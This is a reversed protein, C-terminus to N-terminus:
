FKKTEIAVMRGWSAPTFGGHKKLFRFNKEKFNQYKKIDQTYHITYKFLVQALDAEALQINSGYKKKSKEDM